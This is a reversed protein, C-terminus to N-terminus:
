DEKKYPIYYKGEKLDVIEEQIDTRVSFELPAINITKVTHNEREVEAKLLYKDSADKETYIRLIRAGETAMFYKVDAPYVRSTFFTEYHGYIGTAILLFIIEAFLGLCM